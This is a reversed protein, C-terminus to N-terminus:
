ESVHYMTKVATNFFLSKLYEAIGDEENTGIVLDAAAKVEPAANGMAIGMGCLRLMGIDALDDGFTTIEEPLIGCAGCVRWIATEKTIGKRTFKYWFGDSFRICDCNILRRKLREAEHSDFIEACIKLTSQNFDSFDTYISEGWSSDKKSPDAKYNWYHHELTDATIECRTGCIERITKIISQTEGASFEAKYCYEGFIKVLAGGSAILIDPQLGSLIELSNQESRSTAIGILMGNRRCAELAQETPESITKDDRLLTGDLDFLLLRRGM